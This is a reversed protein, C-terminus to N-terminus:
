HIQEMQNNIKEDSKESAIEEDRIIKMISKNNDNAVENWADEQIKQLKSLRDKKWGWYRSLAIISACMVIDLWKVSGEMLEYEAAKIQKM